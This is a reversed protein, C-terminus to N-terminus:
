TVNGLGAETARQAYARREEKRRASDISAQRAKHRKEM